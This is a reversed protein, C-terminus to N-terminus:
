WQSDQWFREKGWEVWTSQVSPDRYRGDAHREHKLRSHVEEFEERYSEIDEATTLSLFSAISSFASKITAFM